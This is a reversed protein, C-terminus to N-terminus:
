FRNSIRNNIPSLSLISRRIFKLSKFSPQIAASPTRVRPQGGRLGVLEVDRLYTFDHLIMGRSMAKVVNELTYIFTFFIRDLLDIHACTYTTLSHLSSLYIIPLHYNYYKYEVYEQQKFITMFGCNVISSLLIMWSFM